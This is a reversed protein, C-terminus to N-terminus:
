ASVYKSFIEYLRQEIKRKVATKEDKPYVPSTNSVTLTTDKTKKEHTETQYTPQM